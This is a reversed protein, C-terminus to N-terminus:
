PDVNITKKNSEHGHNVVAMEVDKSFFYNTNVAKPVKFEVRVSSGGKPQKWRKYSSIKIGDMKVYHDADASQGFQYGNLKITDGVDVSAPEANLIWPAYFGCAETAQEALIEDMDDESMDCTHFMEHLLTAAIEWYGIDYAYQNYAVVHKDAAVKRIDSLGFRTTHDALYYVTNANFTSQASDAKGGTCKDKFFDKCRKAKVANDILDLARQVTSRHKAPVKKYSDHGDAAAITARRVARRTARGDQVVHALEHAMLQRGGSDREGKAFAIDNGYTFARADIGRAARDAAAGDHVRVSSFDRGFRPEFFARDAKALPKGGGLSHIARSATPAASASQTGPATSLTNNASRRAKDERECDACKRHVVGPWVAQSSVSAGALANDAMRDAAKEAPDQVGGILVGENESSRGKAESRAALASPSASRRVRLGGRRRVKRRVRTKNAM